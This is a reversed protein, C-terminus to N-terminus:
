KKRKEIQQCIGRIMQVDKKELLTRSLITRIRKLIQQHLPRNGKIGYGLINLVKDIHEYMHDIHDKKVLKITA